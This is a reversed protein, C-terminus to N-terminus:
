QDSRGALLGAPKPFDEMALTVVALGNAVSAPHMPEVLRLQRDDLRDGVVGQLGQLSVHPLLASQGNPRALHNGLWALGEKARLRAVYLTIAEGREDDLRPPSGCPNGLQALVKEAPPSYVVIEASM